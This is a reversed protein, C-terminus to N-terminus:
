YKFIQEIELACGMCVEKLMMWDKPPCEGKENPQTLSSAVIFRKEQSNTIDRGCKDCLIKKM